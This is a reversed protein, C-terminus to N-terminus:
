PWNDCVYRHMCVIIVVIVVVVFVVVFFYNRSEPTLQFEYSGYAPHQTKLKVNSLLLVVTRIFVLAFISIYSHRRKHKYLNRVSANVICDLRQNAYSHKCCFILNNSVFYNGKVSSCQNVLNVSLLPKVTRVYPYLNTCKLTTNKM